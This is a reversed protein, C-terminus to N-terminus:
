FLDYLFRIPGFLLKGLRYEYSKVILYYEFSYKPNFFVTSYLHKHNEYITKRLLSYYDESISKNRSNGRIRYYFVAQKVYAVEGGSELMSLWFDWDELGKVMNENFGETKEFDFKRFMSTIVFINRGMLEELSYDVSPMVRRIKGFQVVTSVVVKVSQNTDLIPYMCELFDCSIKDDGDLCLIYEGQAMEIGRNRTICVGRNEQYIYRFRSDKKVYSLAVSESTDTSGDNIIICEWDSFTQMIVSDLTEALYKGQNYCPVIVSIKM